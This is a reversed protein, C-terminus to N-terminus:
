ICLYTHIKERAAFLKKPKEFTKGLIILSKRPQAASLFSPNQKVGGKTISHINEAYIRIKIEGRRLKEFQKIM